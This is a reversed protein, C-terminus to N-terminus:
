FVKELTINSGLNATGTLEHITDLGSIRWRHIGPHLSEDSHYLYVDKGVSVSAMSGINGATGAVFGGDDNFTPPTGFQGVMLGDEWWHMWQNSFTGYQGDYGQILNGGEVLAAIGNHGGYSNYDPFSGKGDPTKIMAGRSTKWAWDSSGRMVGGLHFDRGSITTSMTNYTVFYGSTTPEPFMHMGWGSFGFPDNIAHLDASQPISVSAVPHANGWQPIDAADFGLLDRQYATFTVNKSKLAGAWYSVGGENDLFEPFYGTFLYQGSHRLPGTKPLEVLEANAPNTVTGVQGYTRGNAMTIVRTFPKLSPGSCVSWNKVLSWTFHDGKDEGSASSPYDMKYELWNAFVRTPDNHDAAVQYLFRIFAVQDLYGGTSSIHLARNNGLDGIWFSGDSQFTIWTAPPQNNGAGTGVAPDLYLRDVRVSPDCDAYGGAQGYTSTLNGQPTYLKVQQTTGGDVVAVTGTPGVAIALPRSFDEITQVIMNSQGVGSIRVVHNGSIVWLDGDQSFAMRQPDAIQIGGVLIGTQKNFLIIRNESPSLASAGDKRYSGHAVALLNGYRQVAIGTPLHVRASGSKGSSDLDLVGSLPPGNRPPKGGAPFKYQLKEARDYAMIFAVSGGWGNGVNAFYIRTDDATVHAFLVDQGVTMVNEPTQPDTIEFSSTNPRGESYGNATYAVDSSFVMDVPFNSQMDWSRLATPTRSTNGVLGWEYRVNNRLVKITYAGEPITDGLDNTGSWTEIHSGGTYTVNSWLTRVLNGKRDYVGASTRASEPLSFSFSIMGVRPEPSVVNIIVFTKVRADSKLAASIRVSMVPMLPATYTGDSSIYGSSATGGSVSGTGWEVSATRKGNVDASFAM